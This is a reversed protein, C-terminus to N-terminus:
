RLKNQSRLHAFHPILWGHIYYVFLLPDEDFFTKCLEMFEQSSIGKVECVHFYLCPYEWM